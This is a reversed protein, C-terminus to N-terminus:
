GNDCDPRSDGRLHTHAGQMVIWPLDRWVEPSADDAVGSCLFARCHSRNKFHEVVQFNISAVGKLFCLLCVFLRHGVM